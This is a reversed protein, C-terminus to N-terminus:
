NGEEREEGRIGARGGRLGGEALGGKIRKRRRRVSGFYGGNCMVPLVICAYLSYNFCSARLTHLQM